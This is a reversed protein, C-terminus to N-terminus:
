FMWLLNAHYHKETEYLIKKASLAFFVDSTQAKLMRFHAARTLSQVSSLKWNCNLCSSSPVQRLIFM